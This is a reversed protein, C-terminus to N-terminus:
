RFQRRASFLLRNSTRERGENDSVNYAYSFDLALERLVWSFRLQASYYLRDRPQEFASNEEKRKWASLSPIITFNPRPTWYLSSGVTYFDSSNENLQDDADILPDVNVTGSTETFVQSASINWTLQNRLSLGLTQTLSSTISEFGGNRVTRKEASFRLLGLDFDWNLALGTTQNKQDPPLGFGSVLRHEYRYGRHYLLIWKYGYSLDYTTSNSTYEASPLLRYQYSVLLPDGDGIRGNPIIRLETFSGAYPFIEYDLGLAYVFGDPATVIVTSEIVFRQRLVIPELFQAQHREDLVEGNGSRSVRDTNEYRGSVSASVTGFFFNKKYSVSGGVGFDSRDINDSNRKSGNLNVSSFLNQYLTHQLGFRGNHDTSRINAKAESYSYATNSTVNETHQINLRESLSFQSNANFGGRDLYNFSSYLNSRRGWNLQHSVFASDLSFDRDNIKDDVVERNLLVRLKSSNGTLRFNSRDELRRSEVGDLRSFDQEFTGTRYAFSLPFWLNRWNFNFGTESIDSKNRSGFTLDNASTARSTYLGFSIPVLAEQFVGLSFRYDLDNGRGSDKEGERVERGQRFVPVLRVNFEVIRPDVVYGNQEIFLREELEYVESKVSSGAGPSQDRDQQGDFLVQAELTVPDFFFWGDARIVNSILLFSVILASRLLQMAFNRHM